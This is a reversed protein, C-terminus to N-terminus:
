DLHGVGVAKAREIRADFSGESPEVNGSTVGSHHCVLLLANYEVEWHHRGPLTRERTKLGPKRRDRWKLVTPLTAKVGERNAREVAKQAPMWDEAPPREPPVPPPGAAVIRKAVAKAVARIARIEALWERTPHLWLGPGRRYRLRTYPLHSERPHLAASREPLLLGCRAAQVGAIQDLMFVHDVEEGTLRQTDEWVLQRGDALTRRVLRADVFALLEDLTQALIETAM